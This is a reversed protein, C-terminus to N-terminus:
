IYFVVISAVLTLLTLIKPLLCMEEALNTPINMKESLLFLNGLPHVPLYKELDKTIMILLYNFNVYSRLMRGWVYTVTILILNALALLSTKTYVSYHLWAIHNHFISFGFAGFIFTFITLFTHHTAQRQAPIEHLSPYLVNYISLVWDKEKETMEEPSKNDIENLCSVIEKSEVLKPTIKFRSLSFFAM